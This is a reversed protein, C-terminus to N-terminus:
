LPGQSPLSTMKSGVLMDRLNGLSVAPLSRSEWPGPETHSKKERELDANVKVGLYM